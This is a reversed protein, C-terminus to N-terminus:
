QSLRYILLNPFYRYRYCYPWKLFISISLAIRSFISISTRSYISISISFSIKSFISISLSIESFISISLIDFRNSNPIDFLALSTHITQVLSIFKEKLVAAPLLCRLIISKRVTCLLMAHTECLTIHFSVCLHCLSDFKQESLFSKCAFVTM